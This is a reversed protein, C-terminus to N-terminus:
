TADQQQSPQAAPTPTKPTMLLAKAADFLVRELSQKNQSAFELLQRLEEGSLADKLNLKLCADM